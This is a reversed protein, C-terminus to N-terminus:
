RGSSATHKRLIMEDETMDRNPTGDRENGGINEEGVQERVRGEADDVGSVPVLFVGHAVGGHSPIDPWRSKHESEM